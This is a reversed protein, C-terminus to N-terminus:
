RNRIEKSAGGRERTTRQNTCATQRQGSGSGYMTGDGRPCCAARRVSKAEAAGHVRTRPDLRLHSFSLSLQSKSQLGSGAIM